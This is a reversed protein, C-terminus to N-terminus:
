STIIAIRRRKKKFSIEKIKPNSNKMIQVERQRFKLSTLNKM